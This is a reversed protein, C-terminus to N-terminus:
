EPGVQFLRRQPQSLGHPMWNTATLFTESNKVMLRNFVDFRADGAASEWKGNIYM